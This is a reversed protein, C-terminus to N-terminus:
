REREDRRQGERDHEQAARASEVRHALARRRSADAEALDSVPSQGDEEDGRSSQEAILPLLM